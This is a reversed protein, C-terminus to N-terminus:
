FQWSAGGRVRVDPVIQLASNERIVPLDLGVQASLRDNWIFVIQPGVYVNTVETDMAPVGALDDLGKSEGSVNCQVGLGDRGDQWVYVGPGGEWTLDDAYRYGFSGRTRIAYQVSGTGFFRDCRGFVSTGIVGDFSGSGLALDHGHIASEPIGEEHDHEHLEEELRSSSGTPFKVGGMLDWHVTCDDEMLDFARYTGILTCDGLGGLSSEDIEHHKPRRFWREIIPINFQVAWDSDIQYGVIVQTNSSNMYQAEPNPVKQGDMQITAFRTFQEHVGINFGQRAPLGSNEVRCGCIDCSLAPTSFLVALIIHSIYKM